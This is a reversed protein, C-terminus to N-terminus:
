PRFGVPIRGDLRHGLDAADDLQSPDVWRTEGEPGGLRVLYRPRPQGPGPPLIQLIEVQQASTARDNLREAGTEASGGLGRLFVVVALGAAAALPLSLWRPVAYYVVRARARAPTQGDDALALSCLDLLALEEQCRSCGALHAFIDPADDVELQGDAIAPLLDALDSCSITASRPPSM